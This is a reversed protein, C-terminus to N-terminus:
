VWCPKKAKKLLFLSPKTPFLCCRHGAGNLKWPTAVLVICGRIRAKEGRWAKQSKTNRVAPRIWWWHACWRDCQRTPCLDALCAVAAWSFGAWLKLRQKPGSLGADWAPRDVREAIIRVSRSDALTKGGIEIASTTICQGNPTVGLITLTTHPPRAVLM